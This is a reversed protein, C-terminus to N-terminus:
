AKKDLVTADQIIKRIKEVEDEGIPQHNVGMEREFERNEQENKAYKATLARASIGLESDDKLIAVERQIEESIDDTDHRYTVGGDECVYSQMRRRRSENDIEILTIRQVTKSSEPMYKSNIDVRLRSGDDFDIKKHLMAVSVEEEGILKHRDTFVDAFNRMIEDDVLLKFDEGAQLAEWGSPKESEAQDKFLNLKNKAYSM